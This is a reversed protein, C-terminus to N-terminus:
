GVAGRADAEGSAKRSLMNELRLANLEVAELMSKSYTSLILHLVICIVAITLAFATNNMAKSIGDSLLAQKQEAPVNGLAQFTGILGFITGVLGVLTAVNAFSWLWPIRVTIAPSAEVLAEEVAKAVEIEGRNARKLGASVVKGLPKQSASAAVKAARDLHGTMVLQTIQDMYPKPNMNFKFMLTYVREAAVGLAVALWFLNVFMFPGGDKFFKIGQDMLGLQEAAPAASMVVDALESMMPIM